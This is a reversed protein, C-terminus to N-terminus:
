KTINKAGHYTNLPKLAVYLLQKSSNGDQQKTVNNTHVGFESCVKLENLGLRMLQLFPTFIISLLVFYLLTSLVTPNIGDQIVAETVM